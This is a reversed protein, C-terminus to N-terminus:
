HIQQVTGGSMLKIVIRPFEVLEATWNTGAKYILPTVKLVYDNTPSMAFASELDWRQTHAVLTGAFTPGSPRWQMGRMHRPYGSEHLIESVTVHHPLRFANTIDAKASAVQIGSADWLEVKSGVYNTTALWTWRPANTLALRAIWLLWTEQSYTIFICPQWGDEAGGSIRVENDQTADLIPAEDQKSAHDAIAGSSITLSVVLLVYCALQTTNTLSPSSM